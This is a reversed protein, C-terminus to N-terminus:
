TKRYIFSYIVPTIKNGKKQKYANTEEEPRITRTLVELMINVLLLLLICGQRIRSKLPFVKLMKVNLINAMPKDCAAKIKNIEKDLKNWTKIKFPCQIKDFAKGTELLLIMHNKGKMRNIHHMINKIRM